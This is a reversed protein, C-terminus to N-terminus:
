TLLLHVHFHPWEDSSDPPCTSYSWVQLARTECEYCLLLCVNVGCYGRICLFNIDM